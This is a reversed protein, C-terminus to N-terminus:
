DNKKSKRKRESLWLGALTMLAGFASVGTIKEQLVLISTVVTVVPVLYIYVSTRVAGLIKTAASWTVFCIASAGIGLFLLNLYNVPKLLSEVTIHFPLLFLAPIMFLLGYLFIRRTMQIVNYGYEGIKKILVSYAGWMVAALIALVDGMPNVKLVSSGNLSICAIGALAVLFGAFFNKGLKEEKLFFHALIGTFFPAISVIIGVNSTLTYTLAINEMLFYLTVGCLGSFAFMMERNKERIKLRKPYMVSLAFFGIAFRVFLITVPTFDRLLVKTSIFTTGWIIVTLLAAIHGKLKIDESM